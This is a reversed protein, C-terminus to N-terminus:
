RFDQYEQKTGGNFYSPAAPNNMMSMQRLNPFHSSITETFVSLNTINNKNLWLIQLNLMTPFVTHSTVENCDLVLSKLGSLGYLSRLDRYYCYSM